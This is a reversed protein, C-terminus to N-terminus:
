HVHGAHAGSLMEDMFKEIRAHVAPNIASALYAERIAQWNTGIQDAVADWRRWDHVRQASDLQPVLARIAARREDLVAHVPVRRALVPFLGNTDAVEGLGLAAKRVRLSVTEDKMRDADPPTLGLAWFPLYPNHGAFPGDPSPVFWVHLMVLTTGPPALDPHEHWPPNGDFSAPRVTDGVSTLYAYAAGVLTNKGNVRSFMLQSPADLTFVKGALMRQGSVWHTGMTPIWGFVPGFGNAQASDTSALKATAQEVDHIQRQATASVSKWTAPMSPQASSTGAALFTAATVLAALATTPPM